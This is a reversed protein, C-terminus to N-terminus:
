RSRKKKKRKRKKKNNNKRKNKINPKTNTEKEKNLTKQKSVLFEQYELDKELKKSEEKASALICIAFGAIFIVIMVIPNKLSAIIAGLGNIKFLYKGIIFETKTASDLSDNNDGKTIMEEDNISVIRHTVFNGNDDYFTVIDNATYNSKTNIVILDGKKITPNMSDSMVELIAYGNIPAIDKKLIKINIFTYANYTFIMLLLIITFVKVLKKLHKKM